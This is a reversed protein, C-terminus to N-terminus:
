GSRQKDLDQRAIRLSLPDPAERIEQTREGTDLRFGGDSARYFVIETPGSTRDYTWVERDGTHRGGADRTVESPVGLLILIRGRDTRWGPGTPGDFLRDAMRALEVFRERFANRPTSPDPDLRKWFDRVFARREEDSALEGYLRYEDDTLLYRVPGDRWTKRGEGDDPTAAPTAGWLLVVVAVVAARFGTSVKM